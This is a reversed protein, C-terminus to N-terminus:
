SCRFYNIRYYEEYKRELLEKSVINQEVAEKVSNFEDRINSEYWFLTM